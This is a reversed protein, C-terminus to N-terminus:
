MCFSSISSVSVNEEVSKKIKASAESVTKGAKNVASYLFNGFTKAGQIAKTGVAAGIPAGDKGEETEGESVQPESDAGETARYYRSNEDEDVGTAASSHQQPPETPETPQALHAPPDPVTEEGTARGKVASILGGGASLWSGMQSKVNTLMEMKSGGKTPSSAEKKAEGDLNPDIEEAIPSAIKEETSPPAGDEPKKSMWSSVQNTLGSFM